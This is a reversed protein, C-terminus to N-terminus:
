TGYLLLWLGPLLLCPGHAVLAATLRAGVLRPPSFALLFRLAPRSLFPIGLARAKRALTVAGVALALVAEALWFVLWARGGVAPPGLLVAAIATVGVAVM